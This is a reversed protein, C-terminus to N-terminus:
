GTVSVILWVYGVFFCFVSSYGLVQNRVYKPRTYSGSAPDHRYAEYDTVLLMMCLIGCLVSIFLLFLPSAYSKPLHGAIHFASSGVLLVISGTALGLVFKAFDLYIPLLKEFAGKEGKADFDFSSLKKTKLHVVLWLILFVALGTAAGYFGPFLM